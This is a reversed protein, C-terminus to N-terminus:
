DIEAEKITLEGIAKAGVIRPKGSKPSKMEVLVLEDLSHLMIGHFSLLKACKILYDEAEDIYARYNMTNSKYPNPVHLVHGTKGHAMKLLEQTLSGNHGAILKVELNDNNDYIVPLPFFYCNHRELESMINNVKYEKRLKESTKEFIESHAALSSLIISEFILRLQLALFEATTREYVLDIKKHLVLQCTEIRHNIEEMLKLYRTKDPKNISM